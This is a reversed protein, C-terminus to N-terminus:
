LMVEFLKRKSATSLCLVQLKGHAHISCIICATPSPPGSVCCYCMPKSAAGQRFAPHWALQSMDAHTVHAYNLSMMCFDITLGPRGCTCSCVGEPPKVAMVGGYYSTRAWIIVFWTSFNSLQKASACHLGQTCIKLPKFTM